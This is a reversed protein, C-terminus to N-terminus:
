NYFYKDIENFLISFKTNNEYNENNEYNRLTVFKNDIM